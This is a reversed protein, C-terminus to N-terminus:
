RKKLFEKSGLFLGLNRGIGLNGGFGYKKKMVLHNGWSWFNGGLGFIEWLVLFKGRPWVDGPMWVKEMSECKGWSGYKKVIGQM